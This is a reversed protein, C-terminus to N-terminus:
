GANPLESLWLPIELAGYRGPYCRYEELNIVWGSNRLFASFPSEYSEDRGGTSINWGATQHYNNKGAEHLWLGGAPSEVMDALGRIVQQGMEQPSDQASLTQTFRLWEERYDYRYRVFHKGLLVRLKARMSGSVVLIGLGLIALFVLALQIARGWDGGFYRVYYGIGAIFLLYLGAILLTASHFAAKQSLRIKTTWDRSRVAALFLLPITAAHVFGRISLADEDLRGFMVGDSFLYIDFAFQGTLGLCLPKINWISDNSVSRFLQEVLIMGLVPMALSLVLNTRLWQEASIKGIVPIALWLISAVIVLWCTPILWGPLLQESPSHDTEPTLLYVLFAYWAGHRLIDVLSTALLLPGNKEAGAFYALGAWCISLGIALLMKAARQGARWENGLVILSAALLAYGGTAIGFSWAILSVTNSEM